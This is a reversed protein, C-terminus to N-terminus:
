TLQNKYYVMQNKGINNQMNTNKSVTKITVM